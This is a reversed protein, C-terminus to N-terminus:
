VKTLWNSYKKINGRVVDFYLQMIDKTLKGIKGSGISRRDVEVIPSVQAGTGAFFMEDATYLETRDIKREVTEIGLENKCLEIITRRTIGELIDDTTQPTHLKNYKVLFLNM